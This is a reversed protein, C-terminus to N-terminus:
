SNLWLHAVISHPRLYICVHPVPKVALESAEILSTHPFANIWFLSLFIYSRLSVVFDVAHAM